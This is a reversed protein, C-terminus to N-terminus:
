RGPRGLPVSIGPFCDRRVPLHRPIERQPHVRM